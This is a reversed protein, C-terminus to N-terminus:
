VPKVSLHYLMVSKQPLNSRYVKTAQINLRQFYSPNAVNKIYKIM